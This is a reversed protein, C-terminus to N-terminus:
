KLSFSHTAHCDNVNVNNVRVWVRFKDWKGGLQSSVGGGSGFWFEGVDSANKILQVWCHDIAPAYLVQLVLCSTM